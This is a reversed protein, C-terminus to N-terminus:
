AALRGLNARSGPVCLVNQFRGLSAATLTSLRGGRKIKQFRYGLPELLELIERAQYGAMECTGAQVEIILWPRYTELTRRSGQLASLEAGEIDLKIMDVRSLGRRAVFEDITTLQVQQSSEETECHKFLSGTGLNKEGVTDSTTDAYMAAVGSRAALGLPVAEIPLGPNLALNERLLGLIEHMPEFAFVQGKRGVRKGLALSVEGINAGVDLALMGPKLLQDFVPLMHRNYGGYWFIDGGIHDNIAVKMKLNGDVDTLTVLEDQRRYLGRLRAALSRTLPIDRLRRTLFRLISRAAPM